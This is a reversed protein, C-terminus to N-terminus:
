HSKVERHLILGGKKGFHGGLKPRDVGRNSGGFGGFRLTRMVPKLPALMDGHSGGAVSALDQLLERDCVSNVLSVMAATTRSSTNVASSPTVPYGCIFCNDCRDM